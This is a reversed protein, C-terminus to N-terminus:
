AVPHAGAPANLSEHSTRRAPLRGDLHWDVARAARPSSPVSPTDYRSLDYRSLDIASDTAVHAAQRSPALSVSRRRRRVWDPPAPGSRVAQDYTMAPSSPPTGAPKPSAITAFFSVKNLSDILTTYLLGANPSLGTAPAEVAPKGAAWTRVGDLRGAAPTRASQRPTRPAAPARAPSVPSQPPKNTPKDDFGDPIATTDIQDGDDVQDGYDSEDDDVEFDVVDCNYDVQESAKVPTRVFDSAERQRSPSAPLADAADPGGDLCAFSHNM